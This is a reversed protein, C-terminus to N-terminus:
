PKSPSGAGTQAASVQASSAPLASKKLLGATNHALTHTARLNNGIFRVNGDVTHELVVQGDPALLQIRAALKTAGSITTVARRTESGPTYKEVLVKLVLLNCSANANRDGSRFVHTFQKTKALEELLNQYIADAVSPELTTAGPDIREVQVNWSQNGTGSDQPVCQRAASDAPRAIEAGSATLSDKVTQGEGKPLRFIAGHFGGNADVYEITVSDYKKHSFLSIMRGGGYPAAAKGLMLPVGGVQHDEQGLSVKQISGTPVQVAPSGNRQFRLVGNDISLDGNANPRADEFGMVHTAQWASKAISNERTESAQGAGAASTWVLFIFLASGGRVLLSNLVTGTRTISNPYQKKM